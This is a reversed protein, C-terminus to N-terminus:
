YYFPSSAGDDTQGHAQADSNSVRDLGLLSRYVTEPNNLHIEHPFFNRAAYFCYDSPYNLFNNLESTYVDAYRGVNYFFSTRNTHTRFVSGFYPNLDMKLEQRLKNRETKLWETQGLAEPFVQGESILRQVFMLRSLAERFRPSNMVSVEHDIEQIIAATKWQTAKQPEVLDAYIQDGMYIVNSENYGSLRNFEALGGGTYVEGRKFEDVPELSLVGNPGVRRFRRDDRLYFHPKQAQVIVIDFLDLWEASSGGVLFRMGRDVFDFPSNTLLFLNRGSTRIRELYERLRPNPKLYKEPDQVITRHLTGTAHARDISEAVDSFVYSPQYPTNRAQLADTVDAFLCGQPLAFIDKMMSMHDQVYERSVRLGGYAAVTEENSVPEKGRFLPLQLKNYQDLKCMMGTQRDIHLGRIAFNPDYKLDLLTTPYGLHEVLHVKCIDYILEPVSPLYQVLTYDYDFGYHAVHQLSTDSNAFVRSRPVGPLARAFSALFIGGNKYDDLKESWRAFNPSNGAASSSSHRVRHSLLADVPRVRGAPRGRARARCARLLRRCAARM